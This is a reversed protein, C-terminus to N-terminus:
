GGAPLDLAFPAHCLVAALRRAAAGGLGRRGPPRLRLGVKIVLGFTRRDEAFSFIGPVLM